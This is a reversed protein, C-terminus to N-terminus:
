LLYVAYEHQSNIVYRSDRGTIMSTVGSSQTRCFTKAANQFVTQKQCSAFISIQRPVQTCYRPVWIGVVLLTACYEVLVYWGSQFCMCTYVWSVVRTSYRSSQMHICVYMDQRCTCISIYIYSRAYFAENVHMFSNKKKEKKKEGHMSGIVNFYIYQYFCISHMHM